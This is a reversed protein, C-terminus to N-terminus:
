AAKMVRFIRESLRSLLFIANMEDVSNTKKGDAIVQTPWIWLSDHKDAPIKRAKNAVIFIKEDRPPM